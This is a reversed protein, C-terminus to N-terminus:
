QGATYAVSILNLQLSFSECLYPLPLSFADQM